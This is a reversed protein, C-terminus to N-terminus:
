TPPLESPETTAPPADVGLYYAEIMTRVLALWMGHDSLDSLYDDPSKLGAIWLSKVCVIMEEPRVGESAVARAVRQMVSVIESAQPSRHALDLVLGLDARLQPSVARNFDTCDRNLLASM